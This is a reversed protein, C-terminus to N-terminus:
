NYKLGKVGNSHGNLFIPDMKNNLIDDWVLLNNKNSKTFTFLFGREPVYIMGEIVDPHLEKKLILDESIMDYIEINKGSTLIVINEDEVPM